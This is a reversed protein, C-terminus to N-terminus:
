LCFCIELFKEPMDFSIQDNQMLDCVENFDAEDITLFEVFDYDFILSSIRLKSVLPELETKYTM